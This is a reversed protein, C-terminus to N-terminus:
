KLDNLDKKAKKILGELNKEAASDGRSKATKLAKEYNSILITLQKSRQERLGKSINKM